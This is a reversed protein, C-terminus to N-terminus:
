KRGEQTDSYCRALDAASVAALGCDLQPTSQTTVCDSVYTPGASALLAARHAARDDTVTQLQLEVVHDRLETCRRRMLDDHREESGMCGWAAAIVFAAICGKALQPRNVTNVKPM